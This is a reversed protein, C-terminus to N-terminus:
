RRPLAESPGRGATSGSPETGLAAQARGGKDRGFFLAQKAGDLPPLRRGESKIEVLAWQFIDPAM